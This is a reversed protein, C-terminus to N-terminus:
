GAYLLSYESPRLGVYSTLKDPAVSRTLEGFSRPATLPLNQAAVQSDMSVEEVIRATAETPRPPAAIIERGVYYVQRRTAQHEVTRDADEVGLEDALEGRHRGHEDREVNEVM